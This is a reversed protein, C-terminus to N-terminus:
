PVLIRHAVSTWSLDATEQDDPEKDEASDGEEISGIDGDRSESQAVFELNIVEM